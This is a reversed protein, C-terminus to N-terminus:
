QCRTNYIWSLNTKDTGYEEYGVTKTLKSVAEQGVTHVVFAEKSKTQEHGRKGHGAHAQYIGEYWQSYEPTNVAPELGVTSTRGDYGQVLPETVLLATSKIAYPEGAM